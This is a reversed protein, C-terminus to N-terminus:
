HHSVFAGNVDFEKIYRNASIQVEGSLVAPGNSGIITRARGPRFPPGLSQSKLESLANNVRSEIRLADPESIYIEGLPGAKPNPKV